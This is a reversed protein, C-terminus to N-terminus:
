RAGARGREQAIWQLAAELAPDRGALLAERTPRVLVDPVVGDGEWRMGRPGTFDAVAHMLVDGSPLKRTWAPLAAGMTPEGFVRVRGLQRLGGAFFESTSATMADTLVAVPGAYPRVPQARTDVRRPNIIFNLTTARMRMVGLTDARETFHGAFGPALFGAGGLNGRLDIVMGDLARFSDVAANLGNVVVPMWYNFRVVGANGGGPLPVSRTDLRVELRPLGGFKETMVKPTRLMLEKTVSRGAGDTFRVRLNSGPAGRLASTGAQWAFHQRKRPDSAGPIREVLELMQRISREGVTEVAWGTRVGAAAAPGGPEVHTVLLRGDVLRLDIGADGGRDEDGGIGQQVEAPILGFHSYPLRKLAENLVGRLEQVTKAQAARPRLEERARRWTSNAVATDWLTRDIASWATDFTEAALAPTIPKEQARAVLPAALALAFALPLAGRTGFPKM